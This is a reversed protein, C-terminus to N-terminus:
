RVARHLLGNLNPGANNQFIHQAYMYRLEWLLKVPDAHVAADETHQGWKGDAVVPGAVVRGLALQVIRTGKGPNGENVMIDAIKNAVDQELVALSPLYDLYFHTVAADLVSSQIAKNEALTSQDMSDIIAWGSWQPNQIRSIGRYTEGGRPDNKGWTFWGEDYFVYQLIIDFASM